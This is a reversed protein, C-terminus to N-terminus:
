YSMCGDHYDHFVPVAALELALLPSLDSLHLVSDLMSSSPFQPGPFPSGPFPSGPFPSGPFLSGPESGLLPQM